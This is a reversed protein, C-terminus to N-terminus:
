HRRRHPQQTTTHLTSRRYRGRHHYHRRKSTTSNTTVHDDWQQQGTKGHGSCLQGNVWRKVGEGLSHNFTTASSQTPYGLDPEFCRSEEDTPNAYDLHLRHDWHGWAHSSKARVDWQQSQFQLPPGDYEVTPSHHSSTLSHVPPYPPSTRRHPPAPLGPGSKDFYHPLVPLRRHHPVHPNNWQSPHDVPMNQHPPPPGLRNKASCRHAGTESARHDESSAQPPLRPVCFYPSSHVAPWHQHPPLGESPHYLRSPEPQQESRHGAQQGDRQRPGRPASDSLRPSKVASLVVGDSDKESSVCM